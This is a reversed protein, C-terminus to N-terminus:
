LASRRPTEPPQCRYGTAVVFRRSNHRVVGYRLLRARCRLVARRCVASCWVMNEQPTPRISVTSFRTNRHRASICTYPCRVEARQASSLNQRLVIRSSTSEESEDADHTQHVPSVNGAVTEGSYRETKEVPPVGGEWRGGMVAVRGSGPAPPPPVVRLTIAERWTAGTSAESHTVRAQRMRM